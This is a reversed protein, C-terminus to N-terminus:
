LDIPRPYDRQKEIRLDSGAFPASMLVEVLRKRPKSEPKRASAEPLALIARTLLENVDQFDGSRLREQILAELEPQHIEITMM